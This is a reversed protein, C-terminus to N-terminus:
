QTPCSIHIENRGVSGPVDRHAGIGHRNRRHVVRQGGVGNRLFHTIGAARLIGHGGDAGIGELAVGLEGVDVQRLGRRQHM